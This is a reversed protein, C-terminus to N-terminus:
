ELYAYLPRQVANLLDIDRMKGGEYGIYAWGVKPRFHVHEVRLWAVDSVRCGAWYGLAFLAEGRIDEQREVLTRLVYRQDASLERPALLPQPPLEVGQAPNRRLLEKEAILWRAFRGVASKIRGCHSISHGQSQLYALYTELATKTLQHV